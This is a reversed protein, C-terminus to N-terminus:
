HRGQLAGLLARAKPTLEGGAVGARPPGTLLGRRKRARSIVDRVYVEDWSKEAAITAVPRHDGDQVLQVYRAVLALYWEDAYGDRGNRRPEELFSATEYGVLVSPVIKHQEPISRRLFDYADRPRLQRLSRSTIDGGDEAVVEVRVLVPSGDRETFTYTAKRKGLQQRVLQYRRGLGARGRADHVFEVEFVAGVLRLTGIAHWGEYTHVSKGNATTASPTCV